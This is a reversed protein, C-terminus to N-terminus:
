IRTHFSQQSASTYSPPAPRPKIDRTKMYSLLQDPIEALVDKALRAMSLVQNGSRDVYDRFPVFQVIDREAIRGRSSIRIEDGDLEEMADFEAPGVGVIIISMPLISANVIAEKTQVMDSIVGDTIILLVFYQSGDTVPAACRAVQNIVPAFNTPGYLQVRRLSQYYGELVGDIGNCNPNEPDSNLPFEHSVKGDPPLKAGFGLAPFLKDSDYDQIIEGVAKLAMAYANMQYPNMYHLSTPQSPNGNSATFDIAVTFNLQTGGKIYDLFTFDSEVKFSLLTVTGSNIYKKKKGRKKPNLVEYVNFQSQGRSLERYSTTFEGIFDHSGDRDWDYVDVKVTRDYDGNCLARVPITFPQWVPNLTNKVVETKHCITFTGDENSRYFVLFPDSKGFFDKKDLKNACLQMTAIDRCNSLEEASLILTGCKKGPLGTLSKEIRSGASGIIEGLTVFIQGLFDKHKSINTSRSDVNYVDFRLNQKEEFFYDLVFKRVFDPNLTNEIVETRGYERWEKSGIGQIFLVVVPDSKSFTDVDLLHRCSVTIEIKTAPVTAQLPDFDGISAM